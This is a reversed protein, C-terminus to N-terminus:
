RKKNLRKEKRERLKQILEPYQKKFMIEVSDSLEAGHDVWHAVREKDFHLKKDNEKQHPDYHGLVEILRGDRPSRSDAAVLRFRAYNRRGTRSLRIKVAM